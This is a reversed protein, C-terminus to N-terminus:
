AEHHSLPTNDDLPMGLGGGAPGPAVPTHSVRLPSRRPDSSANKLGFCLEIGSTGLSEGKVRGGLDEYNPGLVIVEFETDTILHESCVFLAFNVFVRNGWVRLGRGLGMRVAWVPGAAGQSAWFGAWSAPPGLPAAGPGATAM